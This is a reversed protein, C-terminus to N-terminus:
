PSFAGACRVAISNSSLRKVDDVMGTCISEILRLEDVMRGCQAPYPPGRSVLTSAVVEVLMYRGRTRARHHIFERPDHRFGLDSGFPHEVWTCGFSTRRQCYGKLCCVTGFGDCNERLNRSRLM